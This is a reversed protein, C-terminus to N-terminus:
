IGKISINKVYQKSASSFGYHCIYYNGSLSAEKSFIVTDNHKFTIVGNEQIIKFKDGNNLVSYVNFTSGTIAGTWRTLDRNWIIYAGENDNHSKMFVAFPYIQTHGLNPVIECEFEFDVDHYLKVPYAAYDGVPNIELAGSTINVTASGTTILDNNTGDNIYDDGLPVYLNVPVNEFPIDSGDASDKLRVTINSTDGSQIVPPNASIGILLTYEEYIVIPVNALGVNSGDYSDYLQATLSVEDGSQLISPATLKVSPNYEEYLVVPVNPVAVHSNDVTDILQATLSVEDGSQLISPATLKVGPTYEEYVIIEQHPIGIIEGNLGECSLTALLKDIDTEQTFESEAILSLTTVTGVVFKQTYSCGAYDGGDYVFKVSYINVSSIPVDVSFKGNNYIAIDSEETVKTAVLTGNVYCKVTASGIGSDYFAGYSMLRASVTFSSQGTYTIFRDTYIEFYSGSKVQEKYVVTSTGNVTDTSRTLSEGSVIFDSLNKPSVIDGLCRVDGPKVSIKEM